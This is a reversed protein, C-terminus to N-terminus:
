QSLNVDTPIGVVIIRFLADQAKEYYLINGGHM